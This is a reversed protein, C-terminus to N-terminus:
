HLKPKYKLAHFLGLYVWGGFLDNMHFYMQFMMKFLSCLWEFYSFSFYQWQYGSFVCILKQRITERCPQSPSRQDNTGGNHKDHCMNLAM